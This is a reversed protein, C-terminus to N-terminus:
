IKEVSAIRGSVTLTDEFSFSVLPFAHGFPFGCVVPLGTRAAFRCFLEELERPDSGSFSGFVVGAARDFLGAQELQTLSRDIKYAPENIDELLIVKGSADPFFDGGALSAAVTLNGALIKGSFDGGAVSRIESSRRSGTFANNMASRTVEDLAAMKGLMPAVVPIGANKVAMAWHLATIDSYGALPIRRRVLKRWNILDLLQACGFGGRTCLLMDVEPDMWMNELQAARDEPTGALYAVKCEPLPAPGRVRLGEKKLASIGAELLEPALRGAPTIIGITKINEHYLM